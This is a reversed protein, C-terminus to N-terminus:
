EKFTVSSLCFKWFWTHCTGWKALYFKNNIWKWINSTGPKFQTNIEIATSFFLWFYSTPYNSFSTFVWIQNKSIKKDYKLINNYNIDISFCTLIFILHWFVESFWFEHKSVIKRSRINLKKEVAWVFLCM